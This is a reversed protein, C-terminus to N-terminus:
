FANVGLKALEVHVRLDIEALVDALDPGLFGAPRQRVLRALRTLGDRSVKGELVEIKLKSLEDLLDNGHAIARRRDPMEEGISQLALITDVGGIAAGAPTPLLRESSADGGLSFEEGDSKKQTRRGNAVGNARLPGDIRM